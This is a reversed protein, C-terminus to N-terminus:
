SIAGKFTMKNFHDGEYTKIFKMIGGGMEECVYEVTM